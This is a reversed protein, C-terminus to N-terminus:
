NKADLMQSLVGCASHRATNDGRNFVKLVPDVAADGFAALASTAMNGTNIADILANLSRIDKLSSVAWIVNAYYGEGYGEGLPVTRILAGTSSGFTRRSTRPHCPPSPITSCSTTRGLTASQFASFSPSVGDRTM